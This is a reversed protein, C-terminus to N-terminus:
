SCPVSTAVLRGNRAILVMLVDRAPEQEEAPKSHTVFSLSTAPGQGPPCITVIPRARRPVADTTQKMDFLHAKGAQRELACLLHEHKTASCWETDTFNGCSGTCGDAGMEGRTRCVIPADYGARLGTRLVLVAAGSTAALYGGQVSFAVVTVPASFGVWDLADTDGGNDCVSFVRLTKDLFGVGVQMGDPSIDMALVAAAGRELAQVGVDTGPVALWDVRGYEGVALVGKKSPWFRIGAVTGKSVCKAQITGTDTDFIVTSRGASAGIHQGDPGWALKEVWMRSSTVNGARAPMDAVSFFSLPEGTSLRWIHGVGRDDGLLLRGGDDSNPSAELSLVTTAMMTGNVPHAFDRGWTLEGASAGVAEVRSGEKVLVVAAIGHQSDKVPCVAECIAEHTWLVAAAGVTTGEPVLSLSEVIPTKVIPLRRNAISDNLKANNVPGNRDAPDVLDQWTGERWTQKRLVETSGYHHVYYTDVVRCMVGDVRAFVRTYAFWFRKAVYVKARLFAAGCEHLDDEYLDVDDWFQPRPERQMLEVVNVDAESPKWEPAPTAHGRPININRAGFVGKKKEHPLIPVRGGEGRCKCLPRRLQASGRALDVAKRGLFSSSDLQAPGFVDRPAVDTTGMYPTTFTYDYDVRQLQGSQGLKKWFHEKAPLALVPPLDLSSWSRLAELAGFHIRIGSKEHKLELTNRGFVAEPLNQGQFCSLERKWAFHDMWGIIPAKRTRVTWRGADCPFEETGFHTIRESARM